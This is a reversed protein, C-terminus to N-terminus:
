DVTRVWVQCIRVDAGNKPAVWEIMDTEDKGWTTYTTEVDTTYYGGGEGTNELVFYAELTTFSGFETAYSIRYTDNSFYELRLLYIYDTGNNSYFYTQDCESDKVDKNSGPVAFISAESMRWTENISGTLQGPNKILGSKIGLVINSPISILLLLGITTTIIIKTRKKM